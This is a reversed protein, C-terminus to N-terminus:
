LRSPTHKSRPVFQISIYLEFWNENLPYVSIFSLSAYFCHLYLLMNPLMVFLFLLYVIYLFYNSKSQSLLIAPSLALPIPVFTSLKFIIKPAYVFAYVTVLSDFSLFVALIFGAVPFGCNSHLKQAKVCM